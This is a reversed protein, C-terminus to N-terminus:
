LFRAPPSSTTALIKSIHLHMNCPSLLCVHVSPSNRIYRSSSRNPHPTRSPLAAQCIWTQHPPVRCPSELDVLFPQNGQHDWAFARRQEGIAGAGGSRFRFRWSAWVVGGVLEVVWMRDSTWRRRKLNTRGTSTRAGFTRHQMGRVPVSVICEKVKVKAPPSSFTRGIAPPLPLQPTSPL